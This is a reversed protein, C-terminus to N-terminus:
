SQPPIMAASAGHEIEDHEGEAEAEKGREAGVDGAARADLPFRHEVKQEAAADAEQQQNVQEPRQQPGLVESGM